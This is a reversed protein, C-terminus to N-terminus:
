QGDKFVAELDAEGLVEAGGLEARIPVGFLDSLFEGELQDLVWGVILGAFLEGAQVCSREAARVQGVGFQLDQDRTWTLLVPLNDAPQVDDRVDVELARIAKGAGSECQLPDDFTERPGGACM